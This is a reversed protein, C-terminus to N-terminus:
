RGLAEDIASRVDGKTAWPGSLGLGDAVEGLQARTM